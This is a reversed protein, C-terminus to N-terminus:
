IKQGDFVPRLADLPKFGHMLVAERQAGEGRVVVFSPTGRLQIEHFLDINRLIAPEHKKTDLCQAFTTGDLSADSAAGALQERSYLEKAGTNVKKLTKTFDEYRDQDSACYAAQAALLEDERSTLTVYMIEMNVKGTRLYETTLQPVTQGDFMRCGTCRYAKFYVLTVPAQPDGIKIADPNDSASQAPAAAGVLMLLAGMALFRKM